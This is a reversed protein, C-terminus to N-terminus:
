TGCSSADTRLSFDAYYRDDYNYEGRAFFSLFAYSTSSDPWQSARTGSSLNTLFDNNQGRTVVQFGESRYDVGEQGLMFTFAHIDKLKFNYNATNTVTLNLMDSSGRGAAGNGNNTQYSPLSHM